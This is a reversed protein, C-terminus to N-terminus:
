YRTTACARALLGVIAQLQADSPPAAPDLRLHHRYLGQVHAGVGLACVAIDNARELQALVQQCHRDLYGEDNHAQTATDMPGGDSVVLLVRKRAPHARLREAAWWLAEGTIGERFMEAHRLVALGPKSRRWDWALPKFVLHLVENLRGPHDPAGQRQWDRRARGGHWSRTSFGLVEHAVEARDLARSLFDVWVSLSPAHGKMSGSCDLLVSVACESRRVTRPQRFLTHALPHALWQALRQNDLTGSDHAGEWGEHAPQTLWARCLRVLRHLNLGSRALDADLSARWAQRQPPRVTEQALMERDHATTFVRYPASAPPRAITDADDFGTDATAALFAPAPLWRAGQGRRPRVTASPTRASVPTVEQTARAVWTSIARAHVIYDRQDHRCRRLGQLAQGLAQGVQGRTAEIRDALDDAIAQGGLRSWAMVVVALWLVGGDTEVKGSAEFDRAWAHFRAQLNRHMGPWHSPVLSEVRLQELLEFMASAVDGEPMSQLHLHPDSWRLRLAVGDVQARRQALSRAADHLAHGHWRWHPDGSLARVTAASLAELSAADTTDVATGPEAKPPSRLM